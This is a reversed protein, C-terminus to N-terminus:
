RALRYIAGEDQMSWYVAVDDMAIGRPLNGMSPLVLEGKLDSGCAPKGSMMPCHRIDGDSFNIQYDGLNIFYLDKEDAAISQPLSGVAVNAGPGTSNATKDVMFIAGGVTFFLSNGALALFDPSAGTAMTVPSTCSPLTCRKVAGGNSDVAWYMTNGDVLVYELDDTETVIMTATSNPAKPAKWIAKTTGNTTWYVNTADLTVGRPDDIMDVIKEQTGGTAKVREVAGTGGTGWSFYAGSSDVAVYYSLASTTAIMQPAGPASATKPVKYVGGGHSADSWYVYTADLAVQFPEGTANILRVPSCKGATCTGGLCDHGCRGCNASDTMTNTCTPTGGKPGDSSEPNGGDGDNGDPGTDSDDSPVANSDLYIDKVGLISTCGGLTGLAAALAWFRATKVDIM